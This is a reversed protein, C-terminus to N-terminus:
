RPSQTPINIEQTPGGTKLGGRGRGPAPPPHPPDVVQSQLIGGGDGVVPWPYLIKHSFDLLM